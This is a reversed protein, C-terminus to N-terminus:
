NKSLIKFFNNKIKLYFNFHIIKTFIIKKTTLFNYKTLFTSVFADTYSM